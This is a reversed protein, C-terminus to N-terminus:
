ACWQSGDDIGGAAIYSTQLDAFKQQHQGYKNGPLSAWINSCKRIADAINGKQIDYFAGCERIQQIAIADQSLPGFDPLQLRHKYPEFYRALLQYRGAATSSMKRNLIRPHDAYSNFILPRSITSGVLVKYGEDSNPVHSTGEAWAIMDLFAALNRPLDTSRPM